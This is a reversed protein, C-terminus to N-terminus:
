NENNKEPQDTIKYGLGVDSADLLFETMCVYFQYM